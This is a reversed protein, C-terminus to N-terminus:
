SRLLCTHSCTCFREFYFLIRLVVLKSVNTLKFHMYFFMYSRTKMYFDHITLKKKFSFDTSEPKNM